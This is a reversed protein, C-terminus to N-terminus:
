PGNIFGKKILQNLLSVCRAGSPLRTRCHQLVGAAARWNKRGIHAVAWNYYSSELNNRCVHHYNHCQAYANIAQQWQKLRFYSNGYQSYIVAKQTRRFSEGLYGRWSRELLRDAEQYKKIALLENLKKQIHYKWHAVHKAKDGGPFSALAMAQKLYHAAADNRGHELEVAAWFALLWAGMRRCRADGANRSVTKLMDHGIVKFFSRAQARDPGKQLPIFSNYWTVLRRRQAPMAPDLIGAMEHLRDRDAAAMRSPATHQLNALTLVLKKLPVIERNLYEQYTSPKLDRAQAWQQEQTEFYKRNHAQAYGSRATTEVEIWGPLSPHGLQVFAHRPMIVGKVQFGFQRALIGYMVASSVCNFKGTLLLKDLRTQDWQYNTLFSGKGPSRLLRLHFERFLVRGRQRLNRQAMVMPTVSALFTAYRDLLAKAQHKERLGSLVLALKLLTEPERSNASELLTEHEFDSIETWISLGHRSAPVVANRPITVRAVCGALGLLVLLTVSIRSLRM